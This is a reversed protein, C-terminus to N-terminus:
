RSPENVPPQFQGDVPRWRDTSKPDIHYGIDKEDDFVHLPRFADNDTIEWIDLNPDDDLNAWARALFATCDASIISWEYRRTKPPSFDLVAPDRSFCHHTAYYSMESDYLSALIDEAEKQKPETYASRFIPITVAFFGVALCILVAAAILILTRTDTFRSPKKSSDFARDKKQPM